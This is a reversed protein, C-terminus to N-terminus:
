YNLPQNGTNQQSSGTARNQLSVTLHLPANHRLQQSQHVTQLLPCVDNDHCSGVPWVANVWGEPSKTLSEREIM